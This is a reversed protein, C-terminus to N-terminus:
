TGDGGTDWVHYDRAPEPGSCDPRDLAEAAVMAIQAPVAANAIDRLVTRLNAVQEALRKNEVVLGRDVREAIRGPLANDREAKALGSMMGMFLHSTEGDAQGQAAADIMDEYSDSDIEHDM